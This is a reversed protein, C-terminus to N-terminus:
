AQALFVDVGCSQPEIHEHYLREFTETLSTTKLDVAGRPSLRVIHSAAEELWEM